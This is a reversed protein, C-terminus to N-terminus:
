LLLTYIMSKLPVYVQQPPRGQLFWGGGLGGEWHGWWVLLTGIQEKKFEADMQV